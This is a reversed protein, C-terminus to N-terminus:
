NLFQPIKPLTAFDAPEHQIILQGHTRLLLGDILKMSTITKDKSFNFKPVLKHTYSERAHYLDGSLIVTGSHPLQLVLSQHGTTHGPTSIIRVLGDAFVDYDGRLLVKTFPKLIQVTSKNVATPLKEQQMAQYEADQILWTAGPFLHANGVHDFHAHSIAVYHIDKPTLGLEKLQAIMTVPVTITVGYKKEETKHGVYQDGVGLDWLLWGKPHKILYCGNVLQRPKHAYFNNDSFSAFDHIDLTGCNLTYLRIDKTANTTQKASLTASNATAFHMILLYGITFYKIKFM